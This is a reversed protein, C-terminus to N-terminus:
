GVGEGNLPSAHTLWDAIATIVQAQWGQTRPDLYGPDDPVAIGHQAGEIELLRACDGLSRALDRSSDVPIFTDATGHVVLVPLSLEDLSENPRFYFVENLLPRGLKFTPNHDIYGDAALKAGAEQDIQGDHWYPKDDIFRKRYNLLPNILVLQRVAAPHAVSYYASIGGSFSAAVLNVPLGPFRANAERVAADIDALVGALTLEQQRGESQGHGRLDFRLSGVGAEALGAALRTFFGGEHRTVGGGHVLVAVADVRDSPTVVTGRLTLGDHSRFKVDHSAAAM